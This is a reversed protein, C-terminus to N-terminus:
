TLRFVEHRSTVCMMARKLGPRVTARQILEIVIATHYRLSLGSSIPKMMVEVKPINEM